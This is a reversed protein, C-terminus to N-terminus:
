NYGLESKVARTLSQMEIPKRLFCGKEKLNSFLEKFEQNFEEFATIFCVKPIDGMNSFKQYLEFGNMKPMKIDILLLDYTGVKYNSLALLPDNFADVVFGDRELSLKYLNAIDPDDDVILIRKKATIINNNSLLCTGIRQSEPHSNNIINDMYYYSPFFSWDQLHGKIKPKFQIQSVYAIHPYMGSLIM